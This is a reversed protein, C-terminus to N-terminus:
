EAATFFAFMPPSDVGAGMMLKKKDESAIGAKAKAMDTVYFVIHLMNPDDLERALAIDVMGQAARTAPTESDFVKAWTDFDKVHHKITLWQKGKADPNFRVVQYFYVEPASVVGNKAMLAKLRPDAMFDKAKQLDSVGFVINIKNPNDDGRGLAVLSLGNAKRATSDNDFGPKWKAYDQVIFTIELITFTEPAAPLVAAAQTTATTTYRTTFASLMILASLM